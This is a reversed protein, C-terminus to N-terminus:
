SFAVDPPQFFDFVFSSHLTIARESPRENYFDCEAMNITYPTSFGGFVLFCCQFSPCCQKPLSESSLTGALDLCGSETAEAMDCELTVIQCAMDWIPQTASIATILSILLFFHRM